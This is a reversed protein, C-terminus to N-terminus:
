VVIDDAEIRFVPVFMSQSSFQCLLKAHFIGFLIKGSVLCKQIPKDGVVQETRKTLEQKRAFYKEVDDMAKQVLPSEKYHKIMEVGERDVKGLRMLDYPGDYDSGDHLEFGVGKIGNMREAPITEYIHLAEELTLNEHYEGM